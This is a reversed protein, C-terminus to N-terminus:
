GRPRERRHAQDTRYFPSFSITHFVHWGVQLDPKCAKALGYIDRYLQHQSSTWLSQWALLEPYRLLLFTAVAVGLLTPVMLLLRTLLYRPV